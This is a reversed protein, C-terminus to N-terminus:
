SEYVYVDEFTMPRRKSEDDVVVDFRVGVFADKTAEIWVNDSLYDSPKMVSFRNGMRVCTVQPAQTRGDEFTLGPVEVIFIGSPCCSSPLERETM